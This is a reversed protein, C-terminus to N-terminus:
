ERLKLMRFRDGACEWESVTRVPPGQAVMREFGGSDVLVYALGAAQSADTLCIIGEEIEDYALSSRPAAGGFRGDDFYVSYLKEMGKVYSDAHRGYRDILVGLPPGAADNFHRAGEHMIARMIQNRRIEPWVSAASLFPQWLTVGVLLVFAAAVSRAAGILLMTVLLALPALVFMARFWVPTDEGAPSALYGAGKTSYWVSVIALAVLLAGGVRSGVKYGLQEVVGRREDWERIIRGLGLSIGVCACTCATHYYITKDARITRTFAVVLSLVAVHALALSFWFRSERERWFSALAILGILLPFYAQGVVADYASLDIGERGFTMSGTAYEVKEGLAEFFRGITGFDFALLCIGAVALAGLVLGLLFSRWDRRRTFLFVGIIVLTALSSPKSIAAFVTFAGALTTASVLANRHFGSMLFVGAALTHLSMDIDPYAENSYRLYVFSTSLFVSYTLGAAFGERRYCYAAGILICLANAAMPHFAGMRLAPDDILPRSILDSWFMGLSVMLRDPYTVVSMDRWLVPRLYNVPDASAPHTWLVGVTLAVFLGGPLALILADVARLVRGSPAPKPFDGM